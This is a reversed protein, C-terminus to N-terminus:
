LSAIRQGEALLEAYSPVDTDWELLTPKHGLKQLTYNYLKTVEDPVPGQHTDYLYDGRHDHGAIHYQVVIDAPFTDVFKYPCFGFNVSNVYINNVDLLVKCGTKHALQTMFEIECIATDEKFSVYRSINELTFEIGLFDQVSDIQQCVVDFSEPTFPLPLLDHTTKSGWGTWCLHDSVIQPKVLKILTKLEKLYEDRDLETSGISLSVGHMTIPVAESVAQIVSMPVGRTNLFNESIIEFFPPPEFGIKDQAEENLHSLADNHHESKLSVGVHNKKIRSVM